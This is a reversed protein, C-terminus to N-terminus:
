GRRDWVGHFVNEEDAQGADEGAVPDLGSAAPAPSFVTSHRRDSLVERVVGADVTPRDESYAYVLSYDCLQNILRPIGRGASHILARAECEERTLAYNLGGELNRLAM